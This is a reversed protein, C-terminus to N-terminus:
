IITFHFSLPTHPRYSPGEEINTQEPTLQLGLITQTGLPSGTHEHVTQAQIQTFQLGLIAQTGLPPGSQEYM